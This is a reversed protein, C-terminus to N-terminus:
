MVCMLMATSVIMSLIKAYHFGLGLNAMRMAQGTRMKKKKRRRQGEEPEDEGQEFVVQQQAPPYAPAGAQPPSPAPPLPQASVQTQPAPVILITGCAPCRVQRGIHADEAILEHGQPCRLRIPM